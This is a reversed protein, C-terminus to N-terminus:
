CSERQGFWRIVNAPTLDLNEINESVYLHDDWGELIPFNICPQFVIFTATVLALLPVSGKVKLGIKKERVM